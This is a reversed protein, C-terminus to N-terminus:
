INRTWPYHGVYCHQGQEELIAAIGSYFAGLAALIACVGSARIIAEIDVMFHIGSLLLALFVFFLNFTLNFTGSRIRLSLLTLMFTYLAWIIDYIAHAQMLDDHNVYTNLAADTTPFMLIGNGTWFAGYSILIAASFTGGVFLDLFGAVLQALGGFMLATPLLINTSKWPLFLRYVGLLITVVAFGWLGVVGPNGMHIPRESNQGNVVPSATRVMMNYAAYMNGMDRIRSEDFNTTEPLSLRHGTKNTSRGSEVIRPTQLPGITDREEDESM